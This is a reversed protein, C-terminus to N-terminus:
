VLAHRTCPFLSSCSMWRCIYWCPEISAWWEHEWVQRRHAMHNMASQSLSQNNAAPPPRAEPGQAKERWLVDNTREVGKSIWWQVTCPLLLQSKQKKTKKNATKPDKKQNKIRQTSRHISWSTTEERMCHIGVSHLTRSQINIKYCPNFRILTITVQRMNKNSNFTIVKARRQTMIRSLLNRDQTDTNPLM